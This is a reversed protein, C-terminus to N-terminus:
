EPVNAVVTIRYTVDLSFNQGPNRASFHITHRGLPLPKLFVWYGDAVATRVYASPYGFVENLEPDINFSFVPTRARYRSLGAVRVGDITCAVTTGNVSYNTIRRLDHISLPDPLNLPNPLGPTTDWEATFAPFFLFRGYPVTITRTADGGFTGALTFVSGQQGEGAHQGTTDFAPNIDPAFSVVWQWWAAAWEHYTRGEITGNTPVLRPDVGGNASAREAQLVGCGLVLLALGRAVLRRRTTTRRM